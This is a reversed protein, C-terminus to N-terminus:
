VRVRKIEPLISESSSDDVWMSPKTICLTVFEELNLAEVVIKAWEAGGQSWVIINTNHARKHSILKDILDYNPALNYGCVYITPKDGCDWFVLTDDVDVYILKEHEITIM